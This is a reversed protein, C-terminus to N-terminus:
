NNESEERLEKFKLLLEKQEKTLDKPIVINTVVYQDGHGKGRLYRVGRNKLRFEIGYETGPPITIEKEVIEEKKHDLSPVKIKGGIIATTIDIDAKTYLDNGRRIFKGNQEIDIKLYLDGPIANQSPVHGAGQIKLHVGDEVGAPINIGKINKIEPVVKKGNCTKCKKTIVKGEGHCYPCETERIMTGFGSRSVKRYRGSGQCESCNEVASPDEAGTGECDSCPVYRKISIDKKVGFMAEKFSLEIEEEIDQGVERRPARSRSSRGGFGFDSFGSGFGGGFGGFISKFLEDIGPIGGSFIDSVDVEVGRFGFQDYNRRKDPASLVEYAEQIEIFKEKAQPDEKNVDPHYKRALKRYALKIQDTTAEKDVGLVEYYDRKNRSSM